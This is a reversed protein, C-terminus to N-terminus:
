DSVNSLMATYSLYVMEQISVITFASELRWETRWKMLHQVIVSLFLTSAGM